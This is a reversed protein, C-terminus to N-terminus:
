LVVRSVDVCALDDRRKVVAISLLRYELVTIVATGIAFLSLPVAKSDAAM